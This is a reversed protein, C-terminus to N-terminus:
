KKPVIAIARRIIMFGLPVGIVLLILLKMDTFLGSIHSATTTIDTAEIEAIGQNYCDEGDWYCLLQAECTEEAVCDGCNPRPGCAALLVSPLLAAITLLILAKKM